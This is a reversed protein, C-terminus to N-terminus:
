LGDKEIVVTCKVKMLFDGRNLSWTHPRLYQKLVFCCEVQCLNGKIDRVCKIMSMELMVHTGVIEM